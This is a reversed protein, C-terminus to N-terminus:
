LAVLSEGATADANAHTLERCALGDRQAIFGLRFGLVDAAADCKETTISGAPTYLMSSPGITGFSLAGNNCALFEKLKEPTVQELWAKVALHSLPKSRAQPPGNERVFAGLKSFRGVVVSRSGEIQCRLTAVCAMEFACNYSSSAIAFTAIGLCRALAGISGMPIPLLSDNPLGELLKREVAKILM